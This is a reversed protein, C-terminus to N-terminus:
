QVDGRSDKASEADGGGTPATEARRGTSDAEPDLLVGADGAENSSEGAQESVEQQMGEHIPASKFGRVSALHLAADRREDLPGNVLGSFGFVVRKGGYEVVEVTRSDGPEFRTSTGAPINLHFGYAKERPFALAKNVEFFHTHSGVQVPRDGTNTVRISTTKRGQNASVYGDAIMYQGPIERTVVTRDGAAGTQGADFEKIGQLIDDM